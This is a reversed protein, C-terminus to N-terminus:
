NGTSTIIVEVRRNAERGEPTLNLAIPALYGMGEAEMRQRSVGYETALRELVSAARRRSLAINGDLSGQADTHGVLAVRLNPNEILYDALEQLSSFDSGALRASGTEFALGELVARGQTELGAALGIIPTARRLAQDDARSIDGADQGVRTLQVFGAEPSRSVLLAIVEETGDEATRWASLQRFDGLNVFMAPPALVDIGFRFDFGGCVRTECEFLVEFGADRLQERLPRILQLSTLGPANIQWAQQTVVGSVPLQPVRAGDWPATPLGFETEQTIVEDTMEANSPFRLTQASALGALLCLATSLRLIM